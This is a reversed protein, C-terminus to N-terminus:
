LHYATYAGDYKIVCLFIWDMKCCRKFFLGTTELKFIIHFFLSIHLALLHHSLKENNQFVVRAEVATGNFEDNATWKCRAHFYLCTYQRTLQKEECKMSTALTFSHFTQYSFLISPFSTVFVREEIWKM